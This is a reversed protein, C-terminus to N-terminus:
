FTRRVQSSVDTMMRGCPIVLRMCTGCDNTEVSLKAEAIAELSFSNVEFDVLGQGSVGAYGEVWKAPFDGEIAVSEEGSTLTGKVRARAGSVEVTLAMVVQNGRKLSPADVAAPMKQAKQKRSAVFRLKEDDGWVLQLVNRTKDFSELLSKAWVRNGLPWLRLSVAEM